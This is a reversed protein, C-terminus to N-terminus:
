EEEELAASDSLESENNGSVSEPEASTVPPKLKVSQSENSNAKPISETASTKSKTSKKPKKKKKKKQDFVRKFKLEPNDWDGKVSYIASSLRDFQDEFIKGVVFVGAATPLGGALAVIWPLNNAVPLTVIMEMNLLENELDAAGRLKFTSSPSRIEIDDKITLQGDAFQLQGAIRDFSIGSKYLDTFDLTMRRAINALNFIGVVKLTGSATDSAALFRGSKVKVSVAGESVKLAWQDPAGDWQLDVNVVASKSEIIKEYHWNELVKALDGVDLQVTIHSRETNDTKNWSLLGPNKSRIHAGRINGTLNELRAGHSDSRLNFAISGYHESGFAIDAISINVADFLRPDVSSLGESEGEGEGEGSNAPFYLRQLDVSYPRKKNDPILIEGRLLTNNVALWWSENRRKATVATSDFRQGFGTVGALTLNKVQIPVEKSSPKSVSDSQHKKSQHQESQYQESVKLYRDLVQQWQELEVVPGNGTVTFFGPERNVASKTQDAQTEISVLASTVGGKELALEFNALNDLGMSLLMEDSNLPLTLWFPHSDEKSKKFPAPLDIEVGNLESRVSFTGGGQGKVNVAANFDTEGSVFDLAPQRSWAAVDAMDVRGNIDILVSKESDSSIAVSLPKQYLKAKIGKSVLGNASSFQLPGTVNDFSIRFDPIQLTNDTLAVDVNIDAKRDTSANTSAIPAPAIPIGLKVSAKAKGKLVWNDFVGGVTDRVASQTIIKLADKGDGQAQADVTLWMGGEALPAVRVEAPKIDLGFMTATQATVDVTTNDIMVLGEINDLKPWKPHYDLTTDKVNFYLQITREDQAAAVLSGRYIFAGDIIHGQPVSGSMWDRFGKNLTYPILKDRHRADTDRIGIALTMLPDGIGKKIPLDLSLLGTAPGHEASLKLPGSKVIVREDDIDWRVKGSAQNFDLWHHYVMPFNLSLQQSNFEVVGHKPSVQIYGDVGKAGPAGKWPSLGVSELNAIMSFASGSNEPPDTEVQQPNELAIRLHVNRLNGTPSLTQLKTQGSENLLQLSSLQTVLKDLSVTPFAVNIANSRVAVFLQELSFNEDNWQAQVNPMWLQWYGDASKEARFRLRINKLPPKEQAPVASKIRAASDVVAAWDLHPIAAEGQVSIVRGPKWDVWVESDVEADHLNLGLSRILPLQDTFDVDDLKIYAQASFGAIDRPDGKAEIVAILPNAAKDFTAQLRLRRFDDDHLLSLEKAELLSTSGQQYNMKLKAATLEVGDVSLIFDVVKDFDTKGEGAPYGKLQWQSPAIEELECHVGDFKLQKVMLSRNLLSALPDLQFSINDINLVPERGPGPSYLVLHEMTLIPSLKSWRGHLRKASLPLGSYTVLREILSQQYQEVYAIYYRGISVYAALLVLVTVFLTWLVRNIWYASKKLV